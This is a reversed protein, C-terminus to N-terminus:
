DLPEDFLSRGRLTVEVTSRTAGTVGMEFEDSLRSLEDAMEQATATSEVELVAVGDSFSRQYIAEVGRIRQRLISKFEVVREFEDAGLVTVKVVGPGTWREAIQRSLEGALERSAEGLAGTTGTIESIHRYVGHSTASALVVGDDVGVAQATIDAMYVGVKSGPTGPGRYAKAQGYIVVEANLESGIKRTQAATLNMGDLRERFDYTDAASAADVVRFGKKLFDEKLAAETASLGTDGAWWWRYDGETSSKEAIMFLVRPRSARKQILDLGALDATLDATSVRARVRVRYLDETRSEGLIEYGLVYGESRTYIREEIVEQNGTITRSEVLAGVANEVAKRLADSIAADRATAVDGDRITGTGDVEVVTVGPETPAFAPEEPPKKACSVLVLALILVLVPALRASLPSKM